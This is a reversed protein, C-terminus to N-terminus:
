EEIIFQNWEDSLMNYSIKNIPCIEGDAIQCAMTQEVLPGLFDYKQEIVNQLYQDIM